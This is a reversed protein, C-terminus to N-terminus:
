GVSRLGPQEPELRIARRFAAIVVAAEDGTAVHEAATMEPEALFVEDIWEVAAGFATQIAQKMTSKSYGPACRTWSSWAIQGDQTDTTRVCCVGILRRGRHALWVQHALLAAQPFGEEAFATVARTTDPSLRSPITCSLVDKV